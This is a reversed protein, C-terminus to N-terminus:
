TAARAKRRRKLIRYGIEAILAFLAIGLFIYAETSMGPLIAGSSAPPAAAVITNQNTALAAKGEADLTVSYIEFNGSRPSAFLLQKGDASFEFPGQALIGQALQDRTASAEPQQLWLDTWSQDLLLHETIYLIQGNSLFVPFHSREGTPTIPQPTGPQVASMVLVRALDGDSFVLRSGDPSWRVSHCAFTCQNNQEQALGKTMQVLGSGDRSSAWVDMVGSFPGSDAPPTAKYVYFAIRTGDPSWSPFTAINGLKTVQTRRQSAVDIIWIERQTATGSDVAIANGDPSWAAHRDDIDKGSSIQKTNTGDANMVYIHFTGDRDSQYAIRKGDPSWAPRVNTAEPNTTLQRIPGPSAANTVTATFSGLTLALLMVRAGTLLRTGDVNM